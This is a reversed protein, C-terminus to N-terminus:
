ECCFRGVSPEPLGTHQVKGEVSKRFFGRGVPLGRLRQHQEVPRSFEPDPVAPFPRKLGHNGFFPFACNKHDFRHIDDREVVEGVTEM